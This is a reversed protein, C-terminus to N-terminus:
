RREGAVWSDILYRAISDRRPVRLPASDDGWEGFSAIERATFWRADEVEETDLHLTTDHARAHFGLMISAPFPWPQSARYTVDTVRVGTEEHVERAVAEELSEGPEVFGALTSYTGPPWRPDRGLLCLPPEGARECVVLMIVAPDTRPFTIHGCGADSCARVHGGQRSHTPSGCRSCFGHQRHWYLMGRAYACLAADTVSLLPGVRRLDFFRHGDALGYAHQEECASLDLAILPTRDPLLGLLVWQGAAERWAHAEGAAFTVAMPDGAGDELPTVLNRDRWLPVFRAAASSLQERVWVEDKRLIGARDLHGQAYRLTARALRRQGGDTM